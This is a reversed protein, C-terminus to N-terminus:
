YEDEYEDGTDLWEDVANRFHKDLRSRKQSGGHKIEHVESRTNRLQDNLSKNRAKPVKLTEFRGLAEFRKSM